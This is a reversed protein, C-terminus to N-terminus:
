RRSSGGDDDRTLIGMIPISLWFIWSWAWGDFAFGCVFFAITALLPTIAMIKARSLGSRPMPTPQLVQPDPRAPATEPSGYAPTAGAASPAVGSGADNTSMPPDLPYGIGEQPGDFPAPDPKPTSM